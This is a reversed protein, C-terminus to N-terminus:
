RSHIAIQYNGAAPGGTMSFTISGIQVWRPMDRVIVVASGAVANALVAASGSVAGGLVVAPVVDVYHSTSPYGSTGLDSPAFNTGRFTVVHSTVTVATVADWEFDFSLERQRETDIWATNYAVFSGIPANSPGAALYQNPKCFSSSM